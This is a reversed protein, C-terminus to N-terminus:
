GRRLRDFFGPKPEESKPDNDPSSAAGVGEDLIVFLDRARCGRTIPRSLGDPTVTIAVSGDGSATKLTGPGDESWVPAGLLEHARACIMRGELVVYLGSRYRFLQAILEEEEKRDGTAPRTVTLVGRDVELRLRLHDARRMLEALKETRPDM